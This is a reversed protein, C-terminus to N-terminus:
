RSLNDLMTWVSTSPREERPTVPKAAPPPTGSPEVVVPLPNKRYVALAAKSIRALAAPDFVQALEAGELTGVLSKAIDKLVGPNQARWKPDAIDAKITDAVRTTRLRETAAVLQEPSLDPEGARHAMEEVTGLDKLFEGSRQRGSLKMAADLKRATRQVLQQHEARETAQATEADRAKLKGELDAARAEAEAARRAEPSLAELEAQRAAEQRGLEALDIGKERAFGLPDKEFKAMRENFERERQEHQPRTKDYHRAKQIERVADEESLDLEQEKGDAKYKAKFRRPEPPKPTEPAPTTKAGEPGAKSPEAGASTQVPAPTAAAAAAPAAVAIPAPM